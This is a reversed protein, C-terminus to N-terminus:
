TSVSLLPFLFSFASVCCYYFISNYSVSFMGLDGILHGHVDYAAVAVMYTDNPRLGAVTVHGGCPTLTGTGSYQMTTANISLEVGAGFPKCYVAFHTATGGKLQFPFHSITLSNSTRNLFLPPHPRTRREFTAVPTTAARMMNSELAECRRIADAAQSLLRAQVM